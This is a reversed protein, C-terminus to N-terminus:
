TSKVIRKAIKVDDPLAVIIAKDEGFKFQEAVINDSYQKIQYKNLVGRTVQRFDWTIVYPGTSTVISKENGDYDRNFYAVTFSLKGGMEWLHDRTLELRRGPKRKDGTLSKEFGDVDDVNVPIVMLYTECTALIWDGNMTVDVGLVPDGALRLQNKAKAKMDQNRNEKQIQNHNFLRVDGKNSGMILDGKTTTAACSFSPDTSRQYRFGFNNAQKEKSSIRPDIRFASKANMGVFTQVPELQALRHEPVVKKVAYGVDSTKWEEVIEGRNMDMCMISNKDNENLMLMKEDQQHLMMQSPKEFFNGGPTVINEITTSFELQNDETIKFVGIKNGRSVFARDSVFGVALGSNKYKDDAPIDDESDELDSDIQLESESEEESETEEDTDEEFAYDENDYELDGVEINQGGVSALVFTQDDTKLKAFPSKNKMEWEAITFERRFKVFDDVSLIAKMGWVNSNEDRGIWEM